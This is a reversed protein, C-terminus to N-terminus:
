ADAEATVISHNTDVAEGAATSPANGSAMFEDYDSLDDTIDTVTVDASESVMSTDSAYDMSLSSMWCGIYRTIIARLNPLSSPQTGQSRQAIQQELQSIVAEQKIDFPWRHHKLSRVLGDVGGAYGFVQMLGATWIATRTFSLTVPESLGPVLEAIQDGFGIGRIPDITRGHSQTMSGVVAIQKFGPQGYAFSFIKIRSAIMTRTQPTAGEKMLYEQTLQM